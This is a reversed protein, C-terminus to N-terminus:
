THSSSVANSPRHSSDTARSPNAPPFAPQHWLFSLCKAFGGAVESFGHGCPTRLSWAQESLSGTMWARLRRSSIPFHCVDLCQDTGGCEDRSSVCCLEYRVPRDTVRRACLRAPSLVLVLRRRM